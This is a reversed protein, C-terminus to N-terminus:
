LEKNRQYDILETITRYVKKLDFTVSTSLRLTRSKYLWDGIEPIRALLPPVVRCISVDAKKNKPLKPKPRNIDWKSM